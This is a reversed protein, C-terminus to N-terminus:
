NEGGVTDDEIEKILTKFNKTCLDKVKKTLNIGLYKIRKSAVSFSVTKTIDKGSLDNYHLSICSVKTHQNQIRCSQSHM